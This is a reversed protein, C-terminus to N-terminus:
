SLFSKAGGKDPSVVAVCKELLDAFKLNSLVKSSKWNTDKLMETWGEVNGAAAENLTRGNLVQEALAMYKTIERAEDTKAAGEVAGTARKRLASAASKDDSSGISQGAGYKMVIIDWSDPSNEKIFLLSNKASGFGGKGSDADSTSAGKPQPIYGWKVGQSVQAFTQGSGSSGGEEAESIIRDANQELGELFDRMM